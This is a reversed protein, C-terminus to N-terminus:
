PNVYERVKTGRSLQLPTPTKTVHLIPNAHIIPLFAFNVNSYLDTITRVVVTLPSSILHLNFFFFFVRLNLRSATQPCVNSDHVSEEYNTILPCNM